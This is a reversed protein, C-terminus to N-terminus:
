DDSSSLLRVLSMFLNIINLFMSLTALVYNTEEGRVLRSTDYLIFGVFLLATAASLLATSIPIFWALVTGHIVM